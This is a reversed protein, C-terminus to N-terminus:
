VNIDEYKVSLEFFLYQCARDETEDRSILNVDKCAGCAGIAIFAAPGQADYATIIVAYRYREASNLIDSFRRKRGGKYIFDDAKHDRFVLPLQARFAAGQVATNQPAQPCVVHICLSVNKGAGFVDGKLTYFGAEKILLSFGRREGKM